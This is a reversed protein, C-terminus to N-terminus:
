SSQEARPKDGYASLIQQLRESGRNIHSKVTGLPTDTVEAIEKHSLGEHYSLVVCLRVPGPLTSLARDLDMGESTSDKQGPETDALEDAGRLADKKRLHQLWISVALRRLWASFANAHKLTHVNLWVKLFVQQALDDALTFDNCCRRMLNRISSQRRRVIEEFAGRDGTRALSVIFAEPCGPYYDQARSV